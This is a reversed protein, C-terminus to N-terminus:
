ISEKDNGGFPDNYPGGSQCIISQVKIEVIKVQPSVYLTQQEENMKHKKQNDFSLGGPM